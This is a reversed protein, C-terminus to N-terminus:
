EFFASPAIVHEFSKYIVDNSPFRVAVDNHEYPKCMVTYEKDLEYPELKVAFKGTLIESEYFEPAGYGIGYPFIDDSLYAREQSINELYPDDLDYDVVELLEHSIADFSSLRVWSSTFYGGNQYDNIDSEYTMLTSVIIKGDNDCDYEVYDSIVKPVEIVFDQEKIPYEKLQGLKDFM